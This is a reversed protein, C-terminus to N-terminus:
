CAVWSRMARAAPFVPRHFPRSLSVLPVDKSFRSPRASRLVRSVPSSEHVPAAGFAVDHIRPANLRRGISTQRWTSTDSFKKTLKGVVEIQRCSNNFLQEITLVAARSVPYRAELASYAQIFIFNCNYNTVTCTLSFLSSLKIM